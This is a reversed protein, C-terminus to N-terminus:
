IVISRSVLGRETLGLIVILALHPQAQPTWDEIEDNWRNCYQKQCSTSETLCCKSDTNSAGRFITIVSSITLFPQVVAYWFSLGKVIKGCCAQLKIYLIESISYLGITVVLSQMSQHTSTSVKYIAWHRTSRLLLLEPCSSGSLDRDHKALAFLVSIDMIDSCQIPRIHIQYQLTFTLTMM